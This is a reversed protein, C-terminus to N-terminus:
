RPAIRGSRLIEVAAVLFTTAEVIANDLEDNRLEFKAPEDALYILRAVITRVEPLLTRVTMAYLVRQLERGQGLVIRQSKPPPKTSKYDTIQAGDGSARIDLRDIRGGYVLGAQTIPIKITEDWPLESGISAEQGFPVESWSRTDARTPDDSALGKATRRAAEKVTHQWLIAPPVSRQLPWSAMIRSSSAAIAADIEAGNARAFGPSPELWAIAGSILEHVLEGFTMPDLELPEPELRISHWGLAYRWIYGLPDRLLRQLSTTSQTRALAALVAPHDSAILGDHGTLTPEQQWNRWCLQSQRVHELQGAERPRALLRDAESFAHAPIRDRKHIVEDQPWLSSPSLISGKASREPRSLVLVERTGSRIVDFHLRDRDATPLGHLVRRGLLHDPLLPDDNESRPWSRNTLGLLRVFPRPSAALHSAPCWVVSNAPDRGDRVRLAQLSLAIAHLPASRSAEEWMALSAGSLLLRAAERGINPGRALLDLVPLLITEVLAGAARHSRGVILAERWQDMTKLGASRPISSFWDEPLTSMFPRAPLRRFLRWVREQSLGNTLIDALAACAQGEPTSLAPVGHSFHLPLGANDAYALFHDDWDPTSTAAIGIEGAKAQGSSLLQRVWRLAEVVESKPDASAEALFKAPAVATRRRLTGKFWANETQVPSAWSLETFGAIENLLPRWVADIEVIGGLTVPGLLLKSLSVRSMAADRLDRTLKRSSPLLERIRTELLHLDAFRGVHQPLSSLDIDARWVADLAQLVARPMGPLCSVSDLDQFGGAALAAQVAPYLVDTTVPAIFGGALRAAVLPLTLIEQGITGRRAAALRQMRVALPGHVVLTFREIM